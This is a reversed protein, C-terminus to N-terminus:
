EECKVKTVPSYSALMPLKLTQILSQQKENFFGAGDAYQVLMMGDRYNAETMDITRVNAQRGSYDWKVEGLDNRVIYTLNKAYEITNSYYDVAATAMLPNRRSDLQRRVMMHLRGPIRVDYVQDRPFYEFAIPARIVHLFAFPELVNFSQFIHELATIREDTTAADVFLIPPANSQGCTDSLCYTLGSMDVKGYHGRNIRIAVIEECHGCTAGGNSRCPCPVNCPCCVIGKGSLRWEQGLPLGSRGRLKERAILSAILRLSPHDPRLEKGSELAQSASALDNSLFEAWSLGVYGDVNSPDIAVAETLKQRALQVRAAGVLARAFLVLILSRLSPEFDDLRIQELFPLADWYNRQNVLDRAQVVLKESSLGEVPQDEAASGQAPGSVRLLRIKEAAEERQWPLAASIALAASTFLFRRRSRIGVDKGTVSAGGTRQGGSDRDNKMLRGLHHCSRADRVKMKGCEYLRREQRWRNPSFFSM